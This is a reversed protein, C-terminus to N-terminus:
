VTTRLALLSVVRRSVEWETEESRMVLFRVMITPLTLSGMGTVRVSNGVMRLVEFGSSPFLATSMMTEPM